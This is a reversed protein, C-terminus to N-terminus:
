QVHYKCLAVASSDEQPRLLLHKPITLGAASYPYVLHMVLAKPQVDLCKSVHLCKQMHIKACM